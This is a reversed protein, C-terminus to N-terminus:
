CTSFRRASINMRTVGIQQLPTHNLSTNPLDLLESLEGQEQLESHVDDLLEQHEQCSRSLRLQHIDHRLSLLQRALHQDVHQM